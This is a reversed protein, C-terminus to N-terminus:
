KGEHGTCGGKCGECNDCKGGCEKCDCSGCDCKGEGCGCSGACGKCMGEKCDSKDCCKGCGCRIAMDGPGTMAMGFAVLMLIFDLEFAGFGVGGRGKVLVISFFMITALIVGAVHTWLGFLMLGGSVVELISVLWAFFAGLGFSAFFAITGEINSLKQIGHFIFVSALALRILLLGFAPNCSETLGVKSFCKCTGNKCNCM